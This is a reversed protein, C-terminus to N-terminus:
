RKGETVAAPLAPLKVGPIVLSRGGDGSVELTFVRGASEPPADVVVLVRVFAGTASTKSEDATVSRTPLTVEGKGTVMASRPSFPPRGAENRIVIDFLVWGRGRYSVGPDSQLGQANWEVPAIGGTQVGSADVYGKLVFDEPRPDAHQVEPPCTVAPLEPRKVDIRIDVEAPNMVLAFGARAPTVGDAFFVTLDHREGVRYDVAARVIIARVDISVVRIRSEDVTLTNKQIDAPFLLVTLTEPAVHIEPLPGAPTGVVTVERERKARSLDTEGQAVAGWLLALVLALRDPQPL